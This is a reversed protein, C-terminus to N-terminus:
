TLLSPLTIENLTLIGNMSYVPLDPDLPPDPDLRSGSDSNGLDWFSNCDSEPALDLAPITVGRTNKELIDDNSTQMKERQAAADRGLSKTRQNRGEKWNARFLSFQSLPM